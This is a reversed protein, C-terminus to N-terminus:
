WVECKLVCGIKELKEKLNNMDNYPVNEKLIAPTKEILDKAKKFFM